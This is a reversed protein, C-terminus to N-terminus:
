RANNLGELVVSRLKVKFAQFTEDDSDYNSLTEIAEVAGDIFGEEKNSVLVSVMVTDLLNQFALELKGIQRGSHTTM